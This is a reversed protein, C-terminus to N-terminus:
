TTYLANIKVYEYTLDCGWAKSFAAGANLHCDVLVEDQDLAQQMMTADFECIEGKEYITQGALKVIAEEPDFDATSYGLACLIRGWNPDKGFIATKVLASGVVAKAAMRADQTSKAGTVSVEILKTAGEGDKAIKKSLNEMVLQLMAKFEAFGATATVIPNQAKGNALVLVMDNTSTDGDITIQNFTVETLESLAQQMLDSPVNADTTIFSLMTAMNPHIMGSGKACGAMTVNVGNIKGNVCINKDLTDTTLIAKALETDNASVEIDKIGQSILDMPLLKGIVGTSGVGVMQADIGFKAATLQAMTQADKVGQKGTCANAVGSNVVIAQMKGNAVVQKTVAITAAKVKNTTFVGAVNAPVSSYIIGLDKKSKKLGVHLAGSTFGAPTSVTGEIINM